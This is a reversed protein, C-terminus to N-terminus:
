EYRKQFVKNQCKLCKCKMLDENSNCRIRNSFSGRSSVSAEQEGDSMNSIESVLIGKRLDTFTGYNSETESGSYGPQTEPRTEDLVAQVTKVMMATTATDSIWMSCFATPVMFGLLLLRDSNGCYSLTFLALRNLLGSEEVAVAIM